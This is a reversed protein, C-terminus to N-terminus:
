KPECQHNMSYVAALDSDLSYGSGLWGLATGSVDKTRFIENIIMSSLQYEPAVM